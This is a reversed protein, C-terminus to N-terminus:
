SNVKFRNSGSTADAYPIGYFEAYNGNTALTGVVTGQALVVSPQAPLNKLSVNIVGGLVQETFGVVVLFIFKLPLWM